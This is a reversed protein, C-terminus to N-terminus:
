KQTRIKAEQTIPLTGGTANFQKAFLLALGGTYQSILRTVRVAKEGFIEKFDESESFLACSVTIVAFIKLIHNKVFSFLTEMSSLIVSM